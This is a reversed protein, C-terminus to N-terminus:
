LVNLLRISLPSWYFQLPNCKAMISLQKKELQLKNKNLQGHVIVISSFYMSRKPSPFTKLDKSEDFSYM